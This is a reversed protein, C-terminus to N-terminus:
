IKVLQEGDRLFQPYASVPAAKRAKAAVKKGQKKAPRKPATVKGNVAKAAAAKVHIPPSEEDPPEDSGTEGGDPTAALLGHLQRAWEGLVLVEDYHAATAAETLLGRLEDEARRIAATARSLTNM